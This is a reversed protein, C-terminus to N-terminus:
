RCNAIRTLREALSEGRVPFACRPQDALEEVPMGSSQRLQQMYAEVALRQCEETALSVAPGRRAQVLCGTDPAAFAPQQCSALGFAALTLLLLIFLGAARYADALRM